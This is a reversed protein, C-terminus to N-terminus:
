RAATAPVMQHVSMQAQAVCSTNMAPWTLAQMSIMILVIVEPMLWHYRPTALVGTRLYAFPIDHDHTLNQLILSEGTTCHSLVLCFVLHLHQMSQIVQVGFGLGSAGVLLTLYSTLCAQVIQSILLLATGDATQLVATCAATSRALAFIAQRQTQSRTRSRGHRQATAQHSRCVCQM